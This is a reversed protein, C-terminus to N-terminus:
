LNPYSSFCPKNTCKKYVFREILTFKDHEANELLQVLAQIRPDTLQRCQLKRELSMPEVASVIRSLADVHMM